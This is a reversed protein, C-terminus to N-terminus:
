VEAEDVDIAADVVRVDIAELLDRPLAEFDVALDPVSDSACCVEIYAKTYFTYPDFGVVSLFGMRVSFYQGATAWDDRAAQTKKKSRRKQPQRDQRYILEHRLAKHAMDYVSSQLRWMDRADRHVWARHDAWQGLLWMAAAKHAVDRTEAQELDIGAYTQSARKVARDIYEAHAEDWVADMLADAQPHDRGFRELWTIRWHAPNRKHVGWGRFDSRSEGDGFFVIADWKMRYAEDLLRIPFTPLAMMLDEDSYGKNGSAEMWAAVHYLATGIQGHDMQMKASLRQEIARICLERWRVWEGEIQYEAEGALLRVTDVSGKSTVALRTDAQLTPAAEDLRERMLVGEVPLVVGRLPLGDLQRVWTGNPVMRDFDAAQISPGRSASM